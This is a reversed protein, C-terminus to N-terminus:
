KYFALPFPLSSWSRLRISGWYSRCRRRCAVTSVSRCIRQCSARHRWQLVLWPAKWYTRASLWRWIALLYHTLKYPPSSSVAKDLEVPFFVCFLRYFLRSLQAKRTFDNLHLIGELLNISSHHRTIPRVISSRILCIVRISSIRVVFVFMLIYGLIMSIMFSVIFPFLLSVLVIPLWFSRPFLRFVFALAWFRTVLVRSLWWDRFSFFSCFSCSTFSM